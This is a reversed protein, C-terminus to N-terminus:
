LTPYNIARHNPYFSKKVSRIERVLRERMGVTVPADPVGPSTGTLDFVGMTLLQDKLIRETPNSRVSYIAAELVQVAMQLGILEDFQGAKRVITNTWDRFASLQLNLGHSWPSGAYNQRNFEQAGTVAAEIFEIGWLKADDGAMRSEDIAKAGDLDDQFYGLYYAGGLHASGLYGLVLEPLDVVTKEEAVATVEGTWIPAKRGEQFLYLPFTVDSDFLLGVQDIQVAVDGLQAPTIRRGVFLGAAEITRDNQERFRTFDLGIELIERENLVGKLTQLIVGRQLSELYANLELDTAEKDAHIQKVISLSALPHFDQFYRGSRSTANDADAVPAGEITEQRWGIRGFLANLIATLNFGNTWSSAGSAYKVGGEFVFYTEGAEFTPGGLLRFGGAALVQIEAAKMYGAENGNANRKSIVLDQGKLTPILCDTLGAAPDYPGAGNVSIEIPKIM